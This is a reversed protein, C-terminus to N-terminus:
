CIEVATEWTKGQIHLKPVLVYWPLQSDVFVVEKRHFLLQQPLGLHGIFTNLDM